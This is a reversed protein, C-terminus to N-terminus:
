GAHAVALHPRLKALVIDGLRKANTRANAAPVGLTEVFRTGVRNDTAPETVVDVELGFAGRFHAVAGAVGVPDNACLIHM